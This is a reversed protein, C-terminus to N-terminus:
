IHIIKAGSRAWNRPGDVNIRKAIEANDEAKDVATYAACNIITKIKNLVVFRRVALEDTIDLENVDTYIANPLRKSLETGLQGNAGTILLM